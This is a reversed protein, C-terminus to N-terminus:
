FEEACWPANVVRFLSDLRSVAGPRLEDIRGARFLREFSMGGLYVSGLEAVSLRLDAPARTPELTAGAPSATIRRRGQNWPFREDILELVAEGEGAFSRAALAAGADVPRVWLGDTLTLRLRSPERVLLTLPHDMPLHLARVRDVLDLSLLFRWIEATGAPTTAMAELVDLRATSVGGEWSGHVRYLAYAEVRGDIELQARFMPPASAPTGPPGSLRWARWWGETRSPLGCTTARVADYITPFTDMAEDLDVLRVQAGAAPERRLVTRDRPADIRAALVGLGYGFPAYIDGESSWLMSLAEGRAHGDALAHEMMRTLHGRRRHGPLVGVMTIGGSPIEGGPVSLGFGVTGTTGVVRGDELALLLRETDFAPALRAVEDDGIAGGFAAM